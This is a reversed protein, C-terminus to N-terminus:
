SKINYISCLSYMSLVGTHIFHVFSYLTFQTTPTHTNAARYYIAVQTEAIVTAVACIIKQRVYRRDDEEKGNGVELFARVRTERRLTEM